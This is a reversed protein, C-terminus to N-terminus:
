LASRLGLVDRCLQVLTLVEICRCLHVFMRYGVKMISFIIYSNIDSVSIIKLIILIYNKLLSFSINCSYICRKGDQAKTVLCIEIINSEPSRFKVKQRINNQTRDM